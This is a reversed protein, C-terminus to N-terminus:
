REFTISSTTEGDPHETPSTGFPVKEVGSELDRRFM